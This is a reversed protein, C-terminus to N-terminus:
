QIGIVTEYGKYALFVPSGSLGPKTEISYELQRECIRRGNGSCILLKDSNTYGGITFYTESEHWSTGGTAFLLSFGFGLPDLTKVKPILIMGWDNKDNSTLPSEEYERCIFINDEQVAIHRGDGTEVRLNKTPQKDKSM